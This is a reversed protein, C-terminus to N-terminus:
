NPLFTRALLALRLAQARTLNADVEAQVERVISLRRDVVAVIRRQGALLQIEVGTLAADRKKAKIARRAKGDAYPLYDAFGQGADLAFEGIAVGQAAHLNASKLDQVAWGAAALLQDIGQRARQEPTV